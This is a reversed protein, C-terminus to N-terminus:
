EFLDEWKTENLLIEELNSMEKKQKSTDDAYGLLHLSGHIILRAVEKEYKQNYKEANEKATPMSIYIEGEITNNDVNMPFAIVDTWQDKSFFEKKLDSVYIDSTFIINIDYKKIKQHKLINKVISICYKKKPVEYDSNSHIIIKKM